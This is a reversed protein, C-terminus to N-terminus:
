IAISSLNKKGTLRRVEDNHLKLFKEFRINCKEQNFTELDSNINMILFASYMDRQVKQGNIINWRQSLKKKKYTNDIHNFQSARAKITNIETLEIGFYGLKRKLISLLMSPARNGISKGFRKKRKYKGTKENMETKKSRRQLGSFNMKEVYFRSGLSLIHNALIEHQLKRVASQKRYLEELKIKLKEYNRSRTWKHRGKIPTGDPNFNDPNTIRRSRDMKRQILARECDISQVRNALECIHVENESVYAITSTGIDIGVDGAGVNHVFSGDSKRRKAPKEGKFVIQLYYHYKGKMIKRKIRCYAIESNLCEMEYFNNHDIIVPIQLKKWSIIEKDRRFIIGVSKTKGELSNMEGYKKFHIKKGNSHFMKDFSKWLNSAIKQATNIDIHKEFHKKMPIVENHFNYESFGNQLRLAEINKWVSKDNAKNGTLKNTLNRYNRTSIMENYRKLMINALGNYIQRGAEMRKNIIREQWLETRLRFQLIFNSKSRNKAM